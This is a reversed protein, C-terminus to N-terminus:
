IYRLKLSLSFNVDVILWNILVVSYKSWSQQM